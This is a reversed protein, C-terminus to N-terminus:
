VVKQLALRECASQLGSFGMELWCDIFWIKHVTSHIPAFPVHPVPCHGFSCAMHRIRELRERDPAHVKGMANDQRHALIGSRVPKGIVPM